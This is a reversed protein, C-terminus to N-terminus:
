LPQFYLYDRPRTIGVYLLRTEEELAQISAAEWEETQQLTEELDLARWDYSYPNVWFRFGGTEWSIM